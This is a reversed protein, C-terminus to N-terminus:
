AHRDGFLIIDPMSCIRGYREISESVKGKDWIQVRHCEKHDLIWRPVASQREAIVVLLAM